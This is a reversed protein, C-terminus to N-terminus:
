VSDIVYGRNKVEFIANNPRQTSNLFEIRFGSSYLVPLRSIIVDYVLMGPM